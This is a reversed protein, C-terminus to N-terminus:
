GLWAVLYFVGFPDDRYLVEADPVRGPVFGALVQWAPRALALLERALGEDIDRLAALDGDRVARELVEDFGAARPDLHGPARVGRRASGDAMVLMGVRGALGGLDAGLRLCASGPEDRGVSQLVRAGAYGAEDLLRAGLGLPVPLGLPGSPVPLGLPGSPLPGPRVGFVAADLCGDAPWRRTGDAAGVVVVVEARSVLRAVAAACAERLAPVVPDRGTVERALLPTPPCVIAEPLGV